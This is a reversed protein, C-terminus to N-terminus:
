RGQRKLRRGAALVQFIDIELFGNKYSLTSDGSRLELLLGHSLEQAESKVKQKPHETERCGQCWKPTSECRWDRGGQIRPRRSDAQEDKPILSYDKRRWM